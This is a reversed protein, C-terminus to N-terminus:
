PRWAGHRWTTLYEGTRQWSRAVARLEAAASNDDGYVRAAAAKTKAFLTAGYGAGPGRLSLQAADKSVWLSVRKDGRADHMGLNVGETKGVKLMGLSAVVQGTTDLVELRRTRVKESIADAQSTEALQKQLADIRSELQAVREAMAAHDAQVSQLKGGDACGLAGAALVLPVIVTAVLGTASLAARFM